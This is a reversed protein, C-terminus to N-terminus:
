KLTDGEFKDLYNRLAARGILLAQGRHGRLNKLPPSVEAMTQGLGAIEFIPDFGFGHHGRPAETISGACVAQAAFIQRDKDIACLACVFQASRHEPPVGRMMALLKRIRDADTAGEGAFRASQVGPAGNLAEVQLGSDDALTLLGTCRHYYRAKKEANESFTAGDEICPAIESYDCLTLIELPLDKLHEALERRKGPSTTALLMKKM